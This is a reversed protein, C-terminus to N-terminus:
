SEFRHTMHYLNMVSENLSLISEYFFPYYEKPFDKSGDALTCVLKGNNDKTISRIFKLEVDPYPASPANDTAIFPNTCLSFSLCGNKGNIQEAFPNLTIDLGTPIIEMMERILSQCLSNEMETIQQCFSM